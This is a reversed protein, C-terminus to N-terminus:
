YRKELIDHYNKLKVTFHLWVNAELFHTIARSNIYSIVSALVNILQFLLDKRCELNGMM